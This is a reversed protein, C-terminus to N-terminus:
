QGAIAGTDAIDAVYAIFTVCAHRDTVNIAGSQGQWERDVPCDCEVDFVVQDGGDAEAVGAHFPSTYVGEAAWRGLIDSLPHFM